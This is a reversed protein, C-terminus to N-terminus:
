YKEFSISQLGRFSKKNKNDKGDISEYKINSNESFGEKGLAKFCGVIKAAEKLQLPSEPNSFLSQIKDSVIEEDMTLVIVKYDTLLGEEVAEGFSLHHLRKGFKAEDDMSSLETSREQAIKKANETYIKPTATMYLRKKAKVNKDSHIKVFHSEQEESLTKEGTTRHAEDCIVFDFDSLNYKKQSKSIVDISHYTAFVVNIAKKGSLEIESALKRACTTAPFALDSLRLRIKDEKIKKNKGVEQDSCVSFANINKISQSKWEQVTQSMLALSPVMYLVLDGENVIDETLRLSTFTKGTGCAMILQGRNTSQLGKKIDKIAKKQHEKLPHKDKKTLKKNEIFNSWDIRSNDIDALQIRRYDKTDSLNDLTNQSKAGLEAGSTDILLMETFLDSTSRSIWSDIDSKKIPYNKDYFKAQISAFTEKGRIKAVLDIGTDNKDFGKRKEAWESWWYIKEYFQSQVDDNELYLKVLSEFGTGKETSNESNDRIYKLAKSLNPM